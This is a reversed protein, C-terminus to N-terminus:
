MVDLLTMHTAITDNLARTGRSDGHSTSSTVGMGRGMRCIVITYLISPTLLPRSNEKGEGRGQRVGQRCGISGRVM